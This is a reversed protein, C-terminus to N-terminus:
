SRFIIKDSEVHSAAYFFTTLEFGSGFTYQHHRRSDQQSCWVYLNTKSVERTKRHLHERCIRIQRIRDM